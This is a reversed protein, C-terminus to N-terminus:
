HRQRVKGSIRKFIPQFIYPLCNIHPAFGGPIDRFPFESMEHKGYSDVVFCKVTEPCFIGIFETCPDFSHCRFLRCEFDVMPAVFHGCVGRSIGSGQRRCSCNCGSLSPASFFRDEGYSCEPCGSDRCPLYVCWTPRMGVVVVGPNFHEHVPVPM